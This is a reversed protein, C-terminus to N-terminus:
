SPRLGGEPSTYLLCIGIRGVFDNYDISSCLMSFPAEPDGVPPKVYDLITRFLPELNEGPVDPSYSATGARGSCFVM